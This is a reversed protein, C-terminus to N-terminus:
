RTAAAARLSKTAAHVAPTTPSVSTVATDAATVVAVYQCSLVERADVVADPGAGIQDARQADARKGRGHPLLLTPDCVLSSTVHPTAVLPSGSAPGSPQERREGTCCEEGYGDGLTEAPPAPALV